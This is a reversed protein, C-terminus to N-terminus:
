LRGVIQKDNGNIDYHVCDFYAGTNARDVSCVLQNVVIDNPRAMASRNTMQMGNFRRMFQGTGINGSNIGFGSEFMQVSLNMGIINDWYYTLQSNPDYRPNLISTEVSALEAASYPEIVVPAEESSIYDIISQPVDIGNEVCLQLHRPNTVGEGWYITTGINNDDALQRLETSLQRNNM